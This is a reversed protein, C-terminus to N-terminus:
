GVEECHKANFGVDWLFGQFRCGMSGENCMVSPLGHVRTMAVLDILRNM